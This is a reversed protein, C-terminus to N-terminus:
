KWKLPVGVQDYRKRFAYSCWSRGHAAPIWGTNKAMIVFEEVIERLESTEAPEKDQSPRQDLLEESTWLIDVDAWDVGDGRQFISGSPYEIIAFVFQATPPAYVAPIHHTKSPPYIPISGVYFSPIINIEVQEEAERIIRRPLSRTTILGTVWGDVHEGPRPRPRTAKSNAQSQTDSPM